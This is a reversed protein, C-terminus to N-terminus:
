GLATWGTADLGSRKLWLTSGVGGNLNRYDSGPPASVFGEPSGRGLTSVFGAPEADSGVRVRGPGSPRLTLDGTATRVVLSGDGSPALYDAPAFATAQWGGWTGVWDITTAAPVLIDTGTWNDQFPASGVRMFRVACNCHLRLRREEAVPLGAVAVASAGQGDGTIAVMAGAAYGSGGDLLGVGLVTGDRVYAVARAGSGAGALPGSPMGSIVVSARTYGSGGAVVRVFGIQGAMAAQHAGVISQVGRGALTVMAGDLVDPVQVQQLAGTDVPNCITRAQNNWSNDRIRVSDTHAWLAQSPSSGEGGIFANRTVAVGQPADVLYVGGGSGDKLMIRNGEITLGECAIGFNQGRGDTEVNYATVGWGNGLLQNDSVRM